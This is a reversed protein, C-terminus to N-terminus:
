SIKNIDALTSFQMRTLKTVGDVLDAVTKGFDHVLTAKDLTTDEIVDHLLAAAISEADMHMDALIGAVALPHSIYAEGSDRKQGAHAGYAILYAQHVLSIQKQNLYNLKKRLKRFPQV